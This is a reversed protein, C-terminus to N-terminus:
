ASVRSNDDLFSGNFEVVMYFSAIGLGEMVFGDGVSFNVQLLAGLCAPGPARNVFM